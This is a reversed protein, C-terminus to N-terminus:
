RRQPKCSAVLAGTLALTSGIMWARGVGAHDVILGGILAGLAVSSQFVTNTLASSAEFSQPAARLTWLQLCLPLAGFAAGWALIAAGSLVPHLRALLAIAIALGIVLIVGSLAWRPSASSAWTGLWVGVLGALGYGALLWAMAPGSIGRATLFPGLYAYASFHGAVVFATALFGTRIAPVHLVAAMAKVDLRESAELPPIIAAQAAFAILALLGVCDFAARWGVLNGALTGLPVGLVTGISIGAVIIAAARDGDHQRVLRRGIAAAFTWVGGLALGLLVRGALAMWLYPSHAVALDSLAISLTLGSLVMRRDLRSACIAFAPASIAAVLGPVSLLLGTRGESAGLDRAISGLLGVPLFESTVMVFTGLAITCVATWRSAPAEALAIVSNPM